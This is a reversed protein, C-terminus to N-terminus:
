NQRDDVFIPPEFIAPDKETLVPEQVLTRVLCFDIYYNQVLEVCVLVFCMGIFLLYTLFHDIRGADQSSSM